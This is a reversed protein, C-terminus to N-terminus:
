HTMPPITHDCSNWWLFECLMLFGGLIAYKVLVRVACLWEPEKSETKSLYDAVYGPM